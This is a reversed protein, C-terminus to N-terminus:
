SEESIPQHLLAHQRERGAIQWIPSVLVTEPMLQDFTTFPAKDSLYHKGHDMVRLGLPGRDATVAASAVLNIEKSQLIADADSAAVVDPFQAKFDAVKAPDPDYVSVIQGGADELGHCMGSIHGHDLGIAAFKFEGPEVVRAAAARPAYKMGDACM